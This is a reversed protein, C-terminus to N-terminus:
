FLTWVDSWPRPEVRGSMAEAAAISCAADTGYAVLAPVEDAFDAWEPRASPLGMLAVASARRLAREYLRQLRVSLGLGEPRYAIPRKYIAVILPTSVGSSSIFEHAAELDEPPSDDYLAFARSADEDFAAVMAAPSGKARARDANFFGLVRPSEGRGLRGRLKALDGSALSVSRRAIALAAQAHSRGGCEELPFTPEVGENLGVRWKLELVRRTSEELRELSLRGADVAAVIAQRRAEFADEVILLDCGALLAQVVAEGPSYHNAIAGMALSDSVVVGGFGLRKRLINTTVSPSLTAPTKTRREEPPQLAPYHVHAVMVAAAGAAIASRFPLEEVMQLRSPDLSCVPLKLHSDGSSAGHGPFHKPCCALGEAQAAEIHAAVLDASVHHNASYGRSNITPNSSQNLLDAVPAFNLRIGLSLSERATARAVARVAELRAVPDLLAGQAAAPPFRTAGKALMSGVGAEFDAAFLLPVLSREQLDAVRKRATEPDPTWKPGILIGGLCGLSVLPAAEELPTRFFAGLLLQGAKDELSLSALQEEVWTSTPDDVPPTLSARSLVGPLRREVPM